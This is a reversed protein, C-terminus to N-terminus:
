TKQIPPKTAPVPEDRVLLAVSPLLATIAFVIIFLVAVLEKYLTLSAWLAGIIVIIKGAEARFMQRITGGASPELGLASCVSGIGDSTM